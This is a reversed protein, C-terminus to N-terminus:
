SFSGVFDDKQIIGLKHLAALCQDLNNVVITEREADIRNRTTCFAMWIQLHM